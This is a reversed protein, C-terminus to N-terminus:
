DSSFLTHTEPWLYCRKSNMGLATKMDYSAKEIQYTATSKAIEVNRDNETQVATCEFNATQIRTDKQKEREGVDGLYVANAIEIRAQNEAGARSKQRMHKFYESGPMDHLEKVNANYIVLGFLHLEEQVKKVITEKFTARDKFISEIPMSAALVRTEGEIVGEIIGDIKKHDESALLL